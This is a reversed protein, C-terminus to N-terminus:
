GGLRDQASKRRERDKDTRKPPAPRSAAQECMVGDKDGDLRSGNVRYLAADVAAGTGTAAIRSRAVGNPYLKLLDACRDFRDITPQSALLVVLIAAIV